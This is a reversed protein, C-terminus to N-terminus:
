PAQYWYYRHYYYPHRYYYGPPAYRPGYSYEPYAPVVACGALASVTLVIAFTRIRSKRYPSM